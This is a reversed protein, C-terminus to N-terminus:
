EEDKKEVFIIIEEDELFKKVKYSERLKDL